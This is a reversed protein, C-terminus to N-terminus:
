APYNLLDFDDKYANYVVDKMKQNYCQNWPKHTSPRLLPLPIKQKTFHSVFKNWDKQLNEYRIIFDYNPKKNDLLWMTQPHYFQNKNLIRPLDLTFNEFSGYDFVYQNEPNGKKNEIIYRYASLLRDYPNRVSVVFFQNPHESHRTKDHGRSKANTVNAKRTLYVIGLEISSSATKPIKLQLISNSVM